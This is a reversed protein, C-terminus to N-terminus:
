NTLLPMEPMHPVTDIVWKAQGDTLKEEHSNRRTIVDSHERKLIEIYEEKSVFKWLGKWEGDNRKYEFFKAKKQKRMSARIASLQHLWYDKDPRWKSKTEKLDDLYMDVFYEQMTKSLIRANPLPLDENDEMAELITVGYNIRKEKLTKNRETNSM